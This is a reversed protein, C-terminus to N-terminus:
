ARSCALRLASSATEVRKPSSRAASSAFSAFDSASASASARACKAAAWAALRARAPPAADCAHARTRRPACRHIEPHPATAGCGTVDEDGRHHRGGRRQAGHFGGRAITVLGGGEREGGDTRTGRRGAGKGRAPPQHASEHGLQGTHRCGGVVVGREERGTTRGAVPTASNGAKAGGKGWASDSQLNRGGWGELQQEEPHM